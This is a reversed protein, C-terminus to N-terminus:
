TTPLFSNLSLFNAISFECNFLLYVSFPASVPSCVDISRPAGQQWVIYRVVYSMETGSINLLIKPSYM